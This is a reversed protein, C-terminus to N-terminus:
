DALRSAVGPSLWGVLTLAFARGPPPDAGGWASPVREVWFPFFTDRM